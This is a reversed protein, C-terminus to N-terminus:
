LETIQLYFLIKNNGLRNYPAFKLIKRFEKMTITMLNWQYMSGVVIHGLVDINCGKLKKQIFNKIYTGYQLLM